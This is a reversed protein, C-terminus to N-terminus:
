SCSLIPHSLQETCYFAVLYCIQQHQKFSHSAPFGTLTRRSIKKHLMAAPHGARGFLGRGLRVHCGAGPYHEQWIPHPLVTDSAAQGPHSGPTADRM